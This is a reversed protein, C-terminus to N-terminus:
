ASILQHEEFCPNTQIARTAAKIPGHGQYPERSMSDRLFLPLTYQPSSHLILLKELSKELFSVSGLMLGARLASGLDPIM